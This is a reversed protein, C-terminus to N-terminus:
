AVEGRANGANAGLYSGELPAVVDLAEVRELKKLSGPFHLLLMSLTLLTARRRLHLHSSLGVRAM